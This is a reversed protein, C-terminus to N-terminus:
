DNKDNLLELCDQSLNKYSLYMTDDNYISNTKEALDQCEKLKNEFLIKKETCIFQLELDNRCLPCRIAQTSDLTGKNILGSYVMLSISHGCKLSMKPYPAKVNTISCDEKNEIDIIPINKGELSYGKEFIKLVRKTIFTIHKNLNKEKEKRTVPTFNNWVQDEISKFNYSTISTVKNKIQNLYQLFDLKNNIKIGESNLILNNVSFDFCKQSICSTLDIYFKEKENRFFLRKTYGSDDIDLNLYESTNTCGIYYFNGFKPQFETNKTKLFLGLQINLNKIVKQLVQNYRYPEFNSSIYFDIDGSQFNAYREYLNENNFYDSILYPFEFIKRLFSGYIGARDSISRSYNNLYSLFSISFDIKDLYSTVCDKLNKKKIQEDDEKKKYEQLKYKLINNESKLQENQYKLESETTM